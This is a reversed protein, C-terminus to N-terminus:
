LSSNSSIITSKLGEDITFPASWGLLNKAKSTDLILSSYIKKLADSNGTCYALIKLAWAPSYFLKSKIGMAKRMRHLLQSTSINESDSVIFIQNAAAPHNISTYIFNVLNGIYIFSRQNNINSLPLPWGTKALKLLSSFSGRANPGYVLPPRIIVLETNSNSALQTLKQEAELKSRAYLDSPSHPSNENFAMGSHTRNGNVGISSIYIFRRVDSKKAAELFQLALEVNVRRYEELSNKSEEKLIHARGACFIITDIKKLSLSADNLQANTLNYITPQIRNNFYPKTSHNRTVAQVQLGQRQLYEVLHSGIFGNAGVVQINLTM